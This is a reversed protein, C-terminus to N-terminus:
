WQDLLKIDKGSAKLFDLALAAVSNMASVKGRLPSKTRFDDIGLVLQCNFEINSEDNIENESVKVSRFNFAHPGLHPNKALVAKLLELPKKKAEQPYLLVDAKRKRDEDNQSNMVKKSSNLKRTPLFLAVVHINLFMGM